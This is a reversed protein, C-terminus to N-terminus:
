AEVHKQRRLFALLAPENLRDDKFIESQHLVATDLVIAPTNYISLMLADVRTEPDEVLRVTHEINHESLYRKLLECKPCVASSYVICTV